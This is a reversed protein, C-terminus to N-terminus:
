DLHIPNFSQHSILFYKNTHQPPEMIPFFSKCMAVIYASTNDMRNYYSYAFKLGETIFPNLNAKTEALKEMKTLFIEFAPIAGALVPTAEKSFIMQVQHPYQFELKNYFFVSFCSQSYNHTMCDFYSCHGDLSEM